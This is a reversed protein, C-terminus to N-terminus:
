LRKLEARLEILKIELLNIESEKADIKAQRLAKGEATKALKAADRGKLTDYARYADGVTVVKVDGHNLYGLETQDSRKWESHGYGYSGDIEDQVINKIWGAFKNLIVANDAYCFANREDLDIEIVVENLVLKVSTGRWYKQMGPSNEWKGDSLQGLVSNIITLNLKGFLGTNISRINNNM